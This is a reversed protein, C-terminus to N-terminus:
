KLCKLMQIGIVSRWGQLHLGIECKGICSTM